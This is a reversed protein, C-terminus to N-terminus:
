ISAEPFQFPKKAKEEFDSPQHEKPPKKTVLLMVGIRAFNNSVLFHSFLSVDKESRIILSM